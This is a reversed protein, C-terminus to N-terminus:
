RKFEINFVPMTMPKNRFDYSSFVGLNIHIERKESEHLLFAVGGSLGICGDERISDGSNNSMKNASRQFMSVCSFPTIKYIRNFLEWNNTEFYHKWGVGANTPIFISPGISLFIENNDKKYTIWSFNFFDTGLKESMIGFSTSRGSLWNGAGNDEAMIFSSVVLVLMVTRIKNM